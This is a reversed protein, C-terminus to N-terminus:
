WNFIMHPSKKLPNMKPEPQHQPQMKQQPQPRKGFRIIKNKGEYYEDANLYIVEKQKPKQLRKIKQPKSKPEVEQPKSEQPEVEVEPDVKEIPTENAEDESEVYGLKDMMMKAYDTGYLENDSM